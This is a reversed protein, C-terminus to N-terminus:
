HKTLRFIRLNLILFRWLQYLPNHIKREQKKDM